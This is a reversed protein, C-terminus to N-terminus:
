YTIGNFANEFGLRTAENKEVSIITTSWDLFRNM